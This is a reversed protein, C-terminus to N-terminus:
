ACPLRAKCHAQDSWEMEHVEGRLAQLHSIWQFWSGNAAGSQGLCSCAQTGKGRSDQPRPPESLGPLLYLM